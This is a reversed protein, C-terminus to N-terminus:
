TEMDQAPRDSTNKGDGNTERRGEAKFDYNRDVLSHIFVICNVVVTNYREITLGECVRNLIVEKFTLFLGVQESWKRM